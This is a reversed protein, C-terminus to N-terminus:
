GGSGVAVHADGFWCRLFERQVAEWTAGKSFEITEVGMDVAGRLPKDLLVVGGCVRIEVVDAAGAM